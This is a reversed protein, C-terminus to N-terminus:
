AGFVTCVLCSQNTSSRSLYIKM